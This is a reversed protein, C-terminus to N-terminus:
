PRIQWRAIILVLIAALAGSAGCTPGLWTAPLINTLSLLVLAGCCLLGFFSLAFGREEFASGKPDSPPPPARNRDYALFNAVVIGIALFGAWMAEGSVILVVAGFVLWGLISLFGITPSSPRRLVGAVPVGLLLGFWIVLATWHRLYLAVLIIAGLYANVAVLRTATAVHQPKLERGLPRRRTM